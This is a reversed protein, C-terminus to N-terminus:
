HANNRPRSRRRRKGDGGGRSEGIARV